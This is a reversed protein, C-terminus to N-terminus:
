RIAILRGLQQRLDTMERRMATLENRSQGEERRVTEASASGAQLIAASLAQQLARIDARLGRIEDEPMASSSGGSRIMDVLREPSYIRAPGTVELEPGREGVLRLGGAHTGGYAFTPTGGAAILAARYADRFDSDSAIRAQVVGGGASTQGLSVLIADRVERPVGQILDGSTGVTAGYSGPVYSV